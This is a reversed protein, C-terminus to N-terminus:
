VIIFDGHVFAKAEIEYWQKKSLGPFRVIKGYSDIKFYGRDKCPQRKCNDLDIYSEGTLEYVKGTISGDETERGIDIFFRYDNTGVTFEPKENIIGLTRSAKVSCSWGM